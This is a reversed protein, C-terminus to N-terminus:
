MADARSFENFSGVVFYRHEKTIEEFNPAESRVYYWSISRADYGDKAVSRRFEVRYIDGLKGDIRWTDPLGIGDPGCIKSDAGGNHVSPYFAQDWDRDRVVTFRCGDKLLHVEATHVGQESELVTM